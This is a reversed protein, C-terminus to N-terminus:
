VRNLVRDLEDLKFPKSIYSNMGARLCHEEDENSANATIACIHVPFRNKDSAEIERIKRTAELGDMEPMFIDMLALDYNKQSFMEVAIKGNEAIDVKHGVKELIVRAVKQNILNDEALLINLVKKRTEPSQSDEGEGEPIGKHVQSITDSIRSKLRALTYPRVLKESIGCATMEAVSVPVMRSTTLLIKCPELLPDKKIRASFDLGNIENLQYEIILLDYPKKIAAQHHIKRIAEDPNDCIEADCDWRDLYDKLLDARTGHTDLVLVKQEHLTEKMTDQAESDPYRDFTVIFSFTTGEGPASEVTIHGDMRDILRRAIALGLGGGGSKKSEPTDLKSFSHFLKKMGDPSIGIGTDSINFRVKISDNDWEQFIAEMKIEGKNTFKLANDTFIKLIQRMRIPDGVVEVPIFPDQFSLVEIGKEAAKEALSCAIEEVVQHISFPKEHFEIKGAEIKSYEMIDNLISMLDTASKVIVDLYDNQEQSLKSQRLIQAMGVVGAMPTYIEHSMSALFSSKAQSDSMSKDRADTLEKEAQKGENVDILIGALKVPKGLIDTEMIKGKDSFWRWDGQKTRLRFVLNCDSRTGEIYAKVKDMVPQRDDPHIMLSLEEFTTPKDKEEYGLLRMYMADSCVKGTKYDWEWWTINGAEMSQQIKKCVTSATQELQQLKENSDKYVSLIRDWQQTAVRLKQNESELELIRNQLEESM